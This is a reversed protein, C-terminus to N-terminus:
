VTGGVAIYAKHFRKRFDSVEDQRAKEYRKILRICGRGFHSKERKFWKKIKNIDDIDSSVFDIFCIQKTYGGPEADWFEDTEKLSGLFRFFVCEPAEGGPLSLSNSSKYKPSLSNVDGDYVIIGNKFDPLGVKRLNNLEGEGLSVDIFDLNKKIKSNLLGKLFIRASEDESFVKIRTPKAPDVTKAQLHALMADLSLNDHIRTKGDRTELYLIKSTKLYQGDCVVRIVDPSHTTFVVQLNLDHCFRYLAKVLQIQSAPYLTADIEDILLLGGKYKEGLRRKLRKFSLIALLLKGVNDQGASNTLSDYRDTAFGLTSKNRSVVYEVQKMRQQLLLIQCHYKEFFEKEDQTLEVPDHIIRKEEGIPVLRKLSLYIVPFQVHKEGSAKSNGAWTRIVNKEKAGRPATFARYRGKPYISHDVEAYWVHDGATELGNPGDSFKFADSFVLEFFSTM